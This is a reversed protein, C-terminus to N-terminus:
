YFLRWQAIMAPFLEGRDTLGFQVGADISMKGQDFRVWGRASLPVRDVLLEGEVVFSLRENMPFVKALAVETALGIDFFGSASMYSDAWWGLGVRLTLPADPLTTYEWVILSDAGPLTERSISGWASVQAAWPAPLGLEVGFAHRRSARRGFYYYGGVRARGLGVDSWGTSGTAVFPLELDLGVRGFSYHGRPTVQLTLAGASYAVGSRVGVSRLALGPDVRFGGPATAFAVSTLLGLM